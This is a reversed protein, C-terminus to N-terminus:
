GQRGFFTDFVVGTSADGADGSMDRTLSYSCWDYMNLDEEDLAFFKRMEPLTFVRDGDCSGLFEEQREDSTEDYQQQMNADQMEDDDESSDIFKFKKEDKEDKRM